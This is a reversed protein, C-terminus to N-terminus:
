RVWGLRGEGDTQSYAFFGGARLRAPSMLFLGDGDSCRGPETLARIKLATLKGM